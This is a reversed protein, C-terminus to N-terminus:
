IYLPVNKNEYLKKYYGNHKKLLENHTGIESIEGNDIVIIRDANKITSLRHAIIIVTKNSILNELAKQVIAESNNDLSSTAEDLIIVPSNKLIARAIAIRQKQGGSFNVGRESTETDLGNPLLSIFESLHANEIANHVENESANPNGTMINERITGSFLFNDQFVVAINKRLSELSIDKININDFLIEGSTVDYFRTILNVLTSKGSGSAGAIAITEGKNIKLNINKLVCQKLNYAFSVNKFEISENLNNLEVYKKNNCIQPRIDFLEFVRGLSVFVGQVGTLSNGIGKVPKYLLLLSTVFAAFSGPSLSGVTIMHTGYSLVVAIGVSAILYMLPSMWGARKVLSMSNKYVEQIQNNFKEMQRKQLCYAKMIRNGSYTENFNTVISGSIVMNKNSTEKVKKRIIVSPIFATCLVIVGILALKGSSYLMVAILALAGASNTFVSKIYNTLGSAARDPDSLYRQLLIGSENKDFFSTDMLVFRSFLTTRVSNTIKLSTSSTIYSNLYRLLGQFLAFLIVGIPILIGIKDSSLLFTKEAIHVIFPKNAIVCDMYPKISVALLGDMAGSPLSILIGLIIRSTYPKIFPFIRKILKIYNFSDEATTFKLKMNLYQKLYFVLFFLIGPYLQKKM